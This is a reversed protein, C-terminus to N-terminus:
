GCNAAIIIDGSIIALVATSIRIQVNRKGAAACEGRENQKAADKYWIEM